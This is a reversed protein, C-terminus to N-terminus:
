AGHLKAALARGLSEPNGGDGALSAHKPAARPHDFVVAELHLIGGSMRGRAGLALHCGGGLGALVAREALVAAATADDHLPALLARARDDESRIEVAIAGQGPAPLFGELVAAHLVHGEVEVEGDAVHGLRELGAAALIVADFDGRSVKAMRTPVNGRVPVVEVDPRLALMM